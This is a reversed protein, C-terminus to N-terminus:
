EGMIQLVVERSRPRNDFDVYVIQQWTGLHMRGNTFPVTLSPGLLSARLHSHGNGDGWAQNHGYGASPPVLRDWLGRFDALLGSEHEIAGVGATSGVCFVTVTGSTIGSGRVEDAVRDTLDVIDCNGSTKLHLTSGKVM